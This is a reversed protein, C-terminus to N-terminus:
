CCGKDWSGSGTRTPQEAKTTAGGDDSSSPGCGCGGSDGAPMAITTEPRRDTMSVEPAIAAPRPDHGPLPRIGEGRGNPTVRFQLEGLIKRIENPLVEFGSGYTLIRGLIMGDQDNVPYVQEQPKVSLEVVPYLGNALPNRLYGTNYSVIGEADTTLCHYYGHSARAPRAVPRRGLALQVAAEHLDYGTITRIFEQMRGGAPRPNIEIIKNGQPTLRLETHTVLNDIGV